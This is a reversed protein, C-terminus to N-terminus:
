SEEEKSAQRLVKACLQLREAIDRAQEPPPPRDEDQEEPDYHGVEVQRMLSTLEEHCSSLQRSVSVLVASLDTVESIPSPDSSHHETPGNGNESPTESM